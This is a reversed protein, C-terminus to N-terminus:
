DNGNRKIEIIRIGDVSIRFTVHYDFLPYPDPQSAKLVANGSVNM